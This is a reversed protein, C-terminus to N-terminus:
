HRAPDARCCRFSTSRSPCSTSARPEAPLQLLALQPATAGASAARHGRRRVEPLDARELALLARRADLQHRARHRSGWASGRLRAHVPPQARSPRDARSLVRPLQGDRDELRCGVRRRYLPQTPVLEELRYPALEELMPAWMQSPPPPAEAALCVWVFGLAIEARVQDLGHERLNSTPSATAPRRPSCRATTVIPGATTRAPSAGPATAPARSCGRAATAASTACHGSPAARSACCSSATAAWSSPSTTGPARSRASM